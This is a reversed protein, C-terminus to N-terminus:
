IQSESGSPGSKLMFKILRWSAMQIFPFSIILGGIVGLASRGFASGIFHGLTLFIGLGIVHLGIIAVRIRWPYIVNM